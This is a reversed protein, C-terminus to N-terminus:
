RLHKPNAIKLNAEVSPRLASLLEGMRGDMNGNRIAAVLAEDDTIGLAALRDAHEAAARPGDTLERGLIAMVNAAILTQFALRGELTPMLEERLFGEVAKALEAASPYRSDTM